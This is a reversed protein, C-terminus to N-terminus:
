YWYKLGKLGGANGGRLPGQAGNGRVWCELAKDDNLNGLPTVPTYRFAVGGRDLEALGLRNFYAAKPPQHNTFRTVNAARADGARLPLLNGQDVRPNLAIVEVCGGGGGM